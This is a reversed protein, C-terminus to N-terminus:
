HDGHDDASCVDDWPLQPVWCRQPSVLVITQPPQCFHPGSIGVATQRHRHHSTLRMHSASSPLRRVNLHANRFSGWIRDGKKIEVPPLGAGQSVTVDVVAERWLGPFQPRLGALSILYVWLYFRSRSTRMAECVYGRLLEDSKADKSNSLEIIHKREKERADDFYFDIVHVAAQAYNVSAGVAVGLINGVLQDLPRGTEALKSLFPYCPRDQPPRFFSRVRAAIGVLFNQIREGM